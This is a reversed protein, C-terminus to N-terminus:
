NFSGVELETSRSGDSLPKWRGGHPPRTRVQRIICGQGSTYESWTARKLFLILITKLVAEMEFRVSGKCLNSLRKIYNSWLIKPLEITSFEYHGPFNHFKNGLVIFFKNFQNLLGALKRFCIRWVVYKKILPIRSVIEVLAFSVKRMSRCRPKPIQIVRLRLWPNEAKWLIRLCSIKPFSRWFSVM